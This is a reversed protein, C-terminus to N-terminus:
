ADRGREVGRWGPQGRFLEWNWKNSPFGNMLQSGVPEAALVTGLLDQPVLARASVDRSPCVSLCCHRHRGAACCGDVRVGHRARPHPVPVSFGPSVRLQPQPVKAGATNRRHSGANSGGRWWCPGNANTLPALFHVAPLCTDFYPNPLSALAVRTVVPSYSRGSKRLGTWPWEAPCRERRQRNKCATIM